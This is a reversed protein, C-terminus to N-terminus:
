KDCGDGVGSVKLEPIKESQETVVVGVKPKQVPVEEVVEANMETIAKQTPGGISLEALKQAIVKKINDDKVTDGIIFLVKNLVVQLYQPDLGQKGEINWRKPDRNRMFFFYEAPSAEGNILREYMKDEVDMARSDMVNFIKEKLRQDRECWIKVTSPYIGNLRCAEKMTAGIQLARLLGIVRSMTKKHPNLSGVPRGKQFENMPNGPSGRNVRENSDNMSDM